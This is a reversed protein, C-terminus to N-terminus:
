VRSTEDDDDGETEMGLAKYLGHLANIQEMHGEPTDWASSPVINSKAVRTAAHAIERLEKIEQVMGNLFASCNPLKDALTNILFQADDLDVRVM